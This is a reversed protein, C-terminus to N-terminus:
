GTIVSVDASGYANAHSDRVIISNTGPTSVQFKVIGYKGMSIDVNETEFECGSCPVITFTDGADKTNKIIIWNTKKEGSALTMGTEYVSVIKGGEVDQVLKQEVNKQETTPNYASPTKVIVETQSTKKTGFGVAVLVAIVLICFVSIVIAMTPLKKKAKM